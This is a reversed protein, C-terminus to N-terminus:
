SPEVNLKAVILAAGGHGGGAGAVTVEASAEAALPQGDRAYEGHNNANLTVRVQRIGAELGALHLWPGYARAHKIGDVYVHAHGEGAVHEGGAGEPSWEFGTTLIQLNLGDESDPALSISVGMGEPAPVPGGHTMGDAAPVTGSEPGMSMGSHDAPPNLHLEVDFEGAYTTNLAVRTPEGAGITVAEPLGHVHVAADSDSDILLTVSDGQRASISGPAGVLAGNRVVLEAEYAVPEDGCAALLAAAIM